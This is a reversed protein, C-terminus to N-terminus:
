HSSVYCANVFVVIMVTFFTLQFLGSKASLWSRWLAWIDSIL